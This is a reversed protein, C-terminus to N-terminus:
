LPDVVDTEEEDFTEKAVSEEEDSYSATLLPTSARSTSPVDIMPTPSAASTSASAQFIARIFNASNKEEKWQVDSALLPLNSPDLM